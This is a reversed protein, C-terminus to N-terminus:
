IFDRMLAIVRGQLKLNEFDTITVDKVLESDSKIIISDISNVLRKLYPKNKYIFFYIKNDQIVELGETSVVILKDDNCITPQMADGVNSIVFYNYNPNYESISSIAIKIFGENGGGKFLSPYYPLEITPNGSLDIAYFQEIRQIEEESFDSNRKARGAIGAQNMDLIKALSTQTPKFGLAKQLRELLKEYNM